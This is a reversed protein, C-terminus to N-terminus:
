FPNTSANEAKEQPPASQPRHTPEPVALDSTRRHDLKEREDVKNKPDAMHPSASAPRRVQADSSLKTGLNYSTETGAIPIPEIIPVPTQRKTLMPQGAGSLWDLGLVVIEVAPKDVVDFVWLYKKDESILQFALPIEQEAGSGGLQRVIDRSM